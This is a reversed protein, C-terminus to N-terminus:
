IKRKGKTEKKGSCAPGTLPAGGGLVASKGKVTSGNQTITPCPFFAIIM